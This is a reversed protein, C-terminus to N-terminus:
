IAQLQRLAPQVVGDGILHLVAGLLRLASHALDQRRALGPLVEAARGRLDLRPLVVEAGPDGSDLRPVVAEAGPDDLDQCSVVAEAGSDNLDQCSVVAERLVPDLHVALDLAAVQLVIQRTEVQQKEAQLLNAVLPSAFFIEHVNQKVNLLVLCIKSQCECESLSLQACRELCVAPM